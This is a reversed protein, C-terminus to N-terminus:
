QDCYQLTFPMTTQIIYSDVNIQPDMTQSIGNNKREFYIKKFMQIQFAYKSEEGGQKFNCAVVTM